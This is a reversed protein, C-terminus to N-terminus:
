SIMFFSRLMIVSGKKKGCLVFNKIKRFESNKKSNELLKLIKIKIKTLM